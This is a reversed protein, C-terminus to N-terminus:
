RAETQANRWASQWGGSLMYRPFVFFSETLLRTAFNGAGSFPKPREPERRHGIGQLVVSSAVAAVGGAALAPRGAIGALVAATGLWVLPIAVVHIALNARTRHVRPYDTIQDEVLAALSM